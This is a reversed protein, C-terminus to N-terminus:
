NKDVIIISRFMISGSKWIAKAYDAEIYDSDDYNAFANRPEYKLFLRDWDPSGALPNAGWTNDGKPILGFSGQAPIYLTLYRDAIYVEIFLEFSVDSLCDIDTSYGNQWKLNIYIVPEGSLTSLYYKFKMSSIKCDGISYPSADYEGELPESYPKQGFISFSIFLSFFFVITKM